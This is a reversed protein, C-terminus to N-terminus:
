RCSAHAEKKINVRWLCVNVSLMCAPVRMSFPMDQLSCVLLTYYKCTHLHMTWTNPLSIRLEGRISTTNNHIISSDVCGCFSLARPHFLFNGLTSILIISRKHQCVHISVYSWFPIKHDSPVARKLKVTVRPCIGGDILVINPQLYVM